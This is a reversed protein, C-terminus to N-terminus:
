PADEPLLEKRLVDVESERRRVSERARAAEARARALTAQLGARRFLITAESSRRREASALANALAAEAAGLEVPAHHDADVARAASLHQEAQLRASEL